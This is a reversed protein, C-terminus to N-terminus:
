RVGGDKRLWRRGDADDRVVAWAGAWPVPKLGERDELEIIRAFAGDEGEFTALDGWRRDWEVFAEYEARRKPGPCGPKGWCEHVIWPLNFGDVALWECRECETMEEYPKTPIAFPIPSDARVEPRGEGPSRGLRHGCEPCFNFEPDSIQLKCHRCAPAETIATSM